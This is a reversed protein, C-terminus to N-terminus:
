AVLYPVVIFCSWLIGDILYSAEPSTSRKTNGREKKHTRVRAIKREGHVGKEFGKRGIKM